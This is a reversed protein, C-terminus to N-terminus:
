PPRHTRWDYIDADQCNPIVFKPSDQPGESVVVADVLTPVTFVRQSRCVSTLAGAVAEGDKALDLLSVPLGL